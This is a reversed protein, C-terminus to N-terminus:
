GARGACAREAAGWVALPLMAGVAREVRRHRKPVATPAAERRVVVTPPRTPDGGVEGMSIELGSWAPHAKLYAARYAARYTEGADALAAAVLTEM